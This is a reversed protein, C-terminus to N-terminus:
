SREKVGWVAETLTGKKQFPQPVEIARNMPGEYANSPSNM